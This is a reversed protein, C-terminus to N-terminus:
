RCFLGLKRNLRNKLKGEIDLGAVITQGLTGRPTVRVEQLRCRRINFYGEFDLTEKITDPLVPVPPATCAVEVSGSLIIDRAAFCVKLGLLRVSRTKNYRPVKACVKRQGKRLAQKVLPRTIKNLLPLCAQASAPDPQSVLTTIILGSALFISAARM